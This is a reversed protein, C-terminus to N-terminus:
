KPITSIMESAILSPLENNEKIGKGHIILIFHKM